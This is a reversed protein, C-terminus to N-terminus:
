WLKETKWQDITECYHEFLDRVHELEGTAVWARDLNEAVGFQPQAVGVTCGSQLLCSVSETVQVLAKLCSELRRLTIGTEPESLHLRSSPDAAHAIFKTAFVWMGKCAELKASLAQFRSPAITDTRSRSSAPIEALTDFREHARHSENWAQSGETDVSKFVQFQGTAIAKQECSTQAAAADYPLRRIALYAERTMLSRHQQMDQVLRQLSFVDKGRDVLRRIGLTQTAVFGRDLLRLVPGHFGVGAAPSRSPQLRHENLTRYLAYDSLLSTLQRWISHEDDGELWVLWQARKVKFRWMRQRQVVDCGDDRFPEPMKPRLEPHREAIRLLMFEDKMREAAARQPDIWADATAKLLDSLNVVRVGKCDLVDITKARKPFDAFSPDSTVAFRWQSTPRSLRVAQGQRKVEFGMEGFLHLADNLASAGLIFQAETPSVPEVYCNVAVEGSLCYEGARECVAVVQAFDDRIRQAAEDERRHSQKNKAM